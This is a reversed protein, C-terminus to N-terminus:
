STKKSDRSKKSQISKLKIKAQKEAVPANKKIQNWKERWSGKDDLVLRLFYGFLLMVPLSRELPMGDVLEPLSMTRESEIFTFVSYDPYFYQIIEEKYRVYQRGKSDVECKGTGEIKVTGKVIFSSRGVFYIAFGSEIKSDIGVRIADEPIDPVVGISLLWPIVTKFINRAQDFSFGLVSVMYGGLYIFFGENNSFERTYGSRRTAKPDAPLFEKTWRRVKTLPIGLKESLIANTLM